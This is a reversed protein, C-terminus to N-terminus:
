VLGADSSSTIPQPYIGTVIVAPASFNALTLAVVVATACVPLDAEVPDAPTVEEPEATEPDEAPEADPAFAVPELETDADLEAADAELLPLAAAPVWPDPTSLRANAPTRSAQNMLYDANNLANLVPFTM